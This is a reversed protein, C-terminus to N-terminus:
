LPIAFTTQLPVYLAGAKINKFAGTMITSLSTM